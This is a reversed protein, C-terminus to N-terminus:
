RMATQRPRCGTMAPAPSGDGAAGIAAPRAPGGARHASPGRPARRAKVFGEGGGGGAPTASAREAHHSPAGAPPSPAGGCCARGPAGDVARSVPAPAARPGLGGCAADARCARGAGVAGAGAGAPEAAPPRPTREASRAAACGAHAAGALHPAAAGPRPAPRAPAGATPRGGGAGPCPWRAQGHVRWCVQRAGLRARGPRAAAAAAHEDRAGGAAGGARRSRRPRAPARRVLVRERHRGARLVAYADAAPCALLPTWRLGGELM